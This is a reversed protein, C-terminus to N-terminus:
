AQYRRIKEVASDSLRYLAPMNWTKRRLRILTKENILTSLYNKKDRLEPGLESYVFERAGVISYIQNLLEWKDGVTSIRM